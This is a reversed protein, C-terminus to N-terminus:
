ADGRKFARAAELVAHMQAGAEALQRGFRRFGRALQKLMREVRRDPLTALLRLAEKRRARRNYTRLRAM